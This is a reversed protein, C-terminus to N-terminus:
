GGATITLAYTTELSDGAALNIVSFVSRDLLVVTAGAGTAANFIGHETVASNSNPSNTGVTTYVNTSVSQNGQNRNASGGTYTIETGLATDGVGAAGTGTGLAHYRFNNIDVTNAGSSEGGLEGALYNVAENTIVRTSVLGYDVKTGNAKLVKVYLQGTHTPIDLVDALTLKLWGKFVNPFFNKIKWSLPAKVTGPIVRTSLTSHAGIKSDLM